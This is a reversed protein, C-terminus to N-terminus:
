RGCAPDALGPDHGWAHARLGGQQSVLSAELGGRLQVLAEGISLLAGVVRAPAREDQGPGGGDVALVQGVVGSGLTGELEGLGVGGRGM